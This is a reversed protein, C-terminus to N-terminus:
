KTVKDIINTTSSIIKKTYPIFKIQLRKARTKKIRWYSDSYTSTILYSPSVKQTIKSYVREADDPKRYDVTDKIGFVLDVSKLESVVSLRHQLKNVPRNKGKSLSITKNNDLGVVLFDVHKKAFRFFQVHGFHLIDFCGTILGVKKDKQKRVEESIEKLTLIM